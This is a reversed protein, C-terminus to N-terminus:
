FLLISLVIVIVQRRLWHLLLYYLLICYVLITIYLARDSDGAAEALMFGANLLAGRNFPRHFDSQEVAWM